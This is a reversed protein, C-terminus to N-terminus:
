RTNFASPPLGMARLVAQFRPQARIGDFMPDAALSYATLGLARREVARELAKLAGDTDGIGAYAMALPFLVRDDDVRRQLEVAVA